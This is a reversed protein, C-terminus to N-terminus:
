HWKELVIIPVVRNSDNGNVLSTKVERLALNSNNHGARLYTDPSAGKAARLKGSISALANGEPQGSSIGSLIEERVFRRKILLKGSFSNREEPEGTIYHAKRCM